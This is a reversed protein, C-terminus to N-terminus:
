TQFALGGVRYPDKMVDLTWTGWRPHPAQRRLQVTTAREPFEALKVKASCTASTLRKNQSQDAVRMGGDQKM